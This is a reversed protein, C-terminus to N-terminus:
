EYRKRTTEENDLINDSEKKMNRMFLPVKKEVEENKSEKDEMVAKEMDEFDKQTIIGERIEDDSVIDKSLLWHYVNEGGVTVVYAQEFKWRFKALYNMADVMSYFEIRKGTEDVMFNKYQNWYSRKQGFDIRVRVKASLIKESGVIQCFTKRTEQATAAVVLIALVTTLLLKKM